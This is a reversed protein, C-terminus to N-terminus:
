NEVGDKYKTMLKTYMKQFEPSPKHTQQIPAQYKDGWVEPRLKKLTFIIATVNGQLVARNLQSEAIDAPVERGKKTITDWRQRFVNDQERYRYMLSRTVGAVNCAMIVNGSVTDLALADLFKQKTQERKITDVKDVEMSLQILGPNGKPQGHLARPSAPRLFQM